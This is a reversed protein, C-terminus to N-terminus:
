LLKYQELFEQVENQLHNLDGTNYIYWDFKHNDLATESEHLQISKDETDRIVRLIIGSRDRIAKYENPFRCDTIIWNPNIWNPDGSGIWYDAFLANVWTNTHLHDRVCETGLLQLFRRVSMPNGDKDNWEAPLDSAKFDRDEFKDLPFGTLMSAIEKLKGAFKKIQWKSHYDLIYDGKEDKAPNGFEDEVNFPISTLKRIMKATEDKGAYIRGSIGIIM